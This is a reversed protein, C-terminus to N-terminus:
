EDEDESDSDFASPLMSSCLEERSYSRAFFMSPTERSRSRSSGKGEEGFSATLLSSTMARRIPQRKFELCANGLIEGPEESLTTWSGSRADPDSEARRPKCYGIEKKGKEMQKEAVQTIEEASLSGVEAEEEASEQDSGLYVRELLPPNFDRTTGKAEWLVSAKLDAGCKSSSPSSSFRSWSSAMIARCSPPSLTSPLAHSPLLLARLTSSPTPTLTPSTPKRPSHPITHSFSTYLPTFHETETVM